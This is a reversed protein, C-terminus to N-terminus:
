CQTGSSTCWIGLSPYNLYYPQIQPYYPGPCVPQTYTLWRMELLQIRIKLEEIEKKLLDLEISDAM